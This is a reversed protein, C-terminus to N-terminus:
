QVVLLQSNLVSIMQEFNIDVTTLVMEFEEIDKKSYNDLLNIMNITKYPGVILEVQKYIQLFNNCETSKLLCLENAAQYQQYFTNGSFGTLGTIVSSKFIMSWVKSANVLNTKKVLFATLVVGSLNIAQNRYYNRLGEIKPAQGYTNLYMRVLNLKELNASKQKELDEIEQTIKKAQNYFSDEYKFSENAVAFNLAVVLSLLLKM